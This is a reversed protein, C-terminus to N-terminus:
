ISSSVLLSNASAPCGKAESIRIDYGFKVIAIFIYSTKRSAAASRSKTLDRLFGAQSDDLTITSDMHAQDAERLTSM